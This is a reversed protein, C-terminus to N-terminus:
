EDLSVYEHLKGRPTKTYYEDPKLPHPFRSLEDRSICGDEPLWKQKGDVRKRKILSAKIDLGLLPAIRNIESVWFENNHSTLNHDASVRAMEDPYYQNNSQHIMEHLLVDSAYREGLKGGIGWPDLKERHMILNTHLTIVNLAWSYHGLSGGHATIGWVIGCPTLRGDFCAQNHNAWTDYLWTGLDSSYTVSAAKRLIDFKEQNNM